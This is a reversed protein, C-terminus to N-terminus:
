MNVVNFGKQDDRFALGFAEGHTASSSGTEGESSIGIAPEKSGEEKNSKDDSDGTEDKHGKEEHTSGDVGDTRACLEM